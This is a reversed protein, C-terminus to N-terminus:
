RTLGSRSPSNPRDLRPLERLKPDNCCATIWAEFAEYEAKRTKEHILRAANDAYKNGMSILSLIKSKKPEALDIMGLDRLSAFTQEHSPLIYNKLDVGALHCQVCSAPRPSKFIPMIRQEFVELSTPTRPEDCRVVVPSAALAFLSFVVAPTSRLM